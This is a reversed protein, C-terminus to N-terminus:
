ELRRCAQKVTAFAEPLIDDLSEGKQIREKFEATKAQIQTDTLANYQEYFDNIKEVQLRLKKLEKENYNGSLLSLIRNLMIKQTTLIM